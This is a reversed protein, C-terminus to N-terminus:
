EQKFGGRSRSFWNWLLRAQQEEVDVVQYMKGAPSSLVWARVTKLKQRRQFPNSAVQLSQICNRKMLVRYRNVFRFRCALQKGELATGGARYRSCGWLFAPVLLLFSLWGHPVWQLPIIFLLCPALARIIYRRLARRPLSIYKDPVKYEPLLQGIFGQLRDKHLLPFLMTVYDQEKSGGGAVEAVLSCRNFPQRLLGEQIVLAQLRHLKLNLQKQEVLGWSVELKQNDRRVTFNYHQIVYAVTSILWSIIMLVALVATITLIVASTLATTTAQEVLDEWLTDPVFPVLQSFLAAIVSFLLLFRGSTAGALFLEPLSVQYEVSSDEGSEEPRSVEGATSSGSIKEAAAAAGNAGAQGPGELIDKIKVAEEFTVANLQFESEGGGGATEVQLSALGLIRQIIGRRINVTQVREQKISRENKVIVGSKLHLYGEEYRYVYFYWKLLQYALSVFFAGAAVLAAILLGRRLDGDGINQFIIIFLPPLIYLMGRMTGFVITLAHQRRYDFM